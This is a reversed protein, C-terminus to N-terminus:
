YQVNNMFFDIDQLAQFVGKNKLENANFLKIKGDSFYVYVMYDKTPVM